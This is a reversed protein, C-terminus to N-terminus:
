ILKMNKRIQVYYSWWENNDFSIKWNLFNEVDLFKTFLKENINVHHCTIQDDWDVDFRYWTRKKNIM